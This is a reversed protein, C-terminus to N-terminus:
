TGPQAGPLPVRGAPLREGEPPRGSRRVVSTPGFLRGCAEGAWRFGLACFGQTFIPQDLTFPKNDPTQDPMLAALRAYISLARAMAPTNVLPEMTAPDYLLGQSVGEYMTM